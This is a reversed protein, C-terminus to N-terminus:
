NNKLLNHEKLFETAVEEVERKPDGDIEWNMKQVAEDTLFPALENLRDEIEPYADLIDQRVLPAVNYVPFFNTEDKLLKLDYGKIQGDTGIVVTVDSEGELLPQYRLNYDIQFQKKFEFGGKDAYLKQLGILGDERLDFEQPYSFILDKSHEALDAYTEIGLEEALEKKMALGYTSNESAPELYALGLKKFEERVYKLVKEQDREVPQEFMVTLATGTYEPYISIDGKKLAEYTPTTGGLFLNREVKIGEDELIQAYMEGMLQNETNDKSGIIVTPKGDGSSDSSCATLMLGVILSIIMILLKNLKM